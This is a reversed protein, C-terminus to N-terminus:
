EKEWQAPFIGKTDIHESTFENLGLTTFLLERYARRNEEKNSIGIAEFRRGITPLSEDVALIGKGPALLAAAISETTPMNIFIM